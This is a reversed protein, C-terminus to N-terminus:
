SVIPLPKEECLLNGFKRLLEIGRIEVSLQPMSVVHFDFAYLDQIQSLYKSQMRRRSLFVKELADVKTNLVTITEKLHKNEEELSNFTKTVKREPANISASNLAIDYELPFHVQNVVICRCDIGRKALEQVLRETEYVSLFEPICVCIFTTKAPDTFTEKVSSLLSKLKELTKTIDTEKLNQGSLVNFMNLAPSFKEQISNIKNVGIELLDPFALLRMTHGTPATDFIIVSFDLTQASQMLEALSLAEDIGPLTQMMEPLSDIFSNGNPLQFQSSKPNSSDIEMAFLNEVGNVVTPTNSFKQGFTDSLNHAPDTSIILVRSRKKAMQLAISCSTTTKGVGGKGGVFIWKLESPVFLEELTSSLPIEEDGNISLESM